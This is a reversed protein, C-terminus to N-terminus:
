LSVTHSGHARVTTILPFQRIACKEGPKGNGKRLLNAPIALDTQNNNTNSMSDEM